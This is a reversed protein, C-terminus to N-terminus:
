VEYTFNYSTRDAGCKSCRTPIFDGKLCECNEDPFAANYDKWHNWIRAHKKKVYERM